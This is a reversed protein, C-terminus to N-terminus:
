GAQLDRLASRLIRSVHMQSYGIREGIQRQTLDESFRLRLADRQPGSLQRWATSISDREAVLQYHHDDSGLREILPAAGEADSVAADLSSSEYATSAERAELIEEVNRGCAEAVERITPSRGLEKSLRETERGVLLTREQLERPVHVAWGKDRFYRKLEGLITPAAYSTFKVGRHPDFRDLAKMLGLAAVQFLDDFPEDLYLYRSALDRALPLFREILEERVALDGTAHYASLLSREYEAPTRAGALHPHRTAARQFTVSM